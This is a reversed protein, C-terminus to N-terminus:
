RSAFGIKRWYDNVLAAATDLTTAPLTFEQALAAYPEVWASPPEPLVDPLAHTDRTQFTALLASRVRESDLLGSTILLVLDVLDKVRTNERTGSFRTDWPFTYAHLKEAFQQEVPYLAVRTAPIGAFALLSTHEVWDAPRLVADGLGVDLHFKAFTRGALRAEVLCRLGGGPAGTRELQPRSLWFEFGDELPRAAAQQLRAYALETWSDPAAQDVPTLQAPDPVTLDLDLTARAREDFRLELAYGGKLLWPPAADVFLRALLREFAARRYLRRLDTGQQQALNRLRSELASRFAQPTAYAGIM